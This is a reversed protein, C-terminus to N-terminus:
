AQINLTLPIYFSQTPWLFYIFYAYFDKFIGYAREKAVKNKVEGEVCMGDIESGRGLLMLIKDFANYDQSQKELIDWKLERLPKGM